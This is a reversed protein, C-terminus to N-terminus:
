DITEEVTAAELEQQAESPEAAKKEKPAKPQRVKPASVPGGLTVGEIALYGTRLDWRLDGMTGGAKLYEAVTPAGMYAEFRAHTGKGPSRPNSTVFWTITADATIDGIIQLSKDHKTQKVAPEASASAPAPTDAVVSPIAAKAPKKAMENESVFAPAPRRTWRSQEVKRGLYYARYAGIPDGPIKFEEPMAQAAPTMMEIPFKPPNESCEQIVLLSAHSKSFRYEYEECLAFGHKVTWLWNYYTDGAWLVSPHHPHTPRYMKENHVNWRYAVSSLIQATELCMKVVHKDHLMEAATVPSRHLMFINM